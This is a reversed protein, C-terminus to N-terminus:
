FLIFNFLLIMLCVWKVGVKTLKGDQPIESIKWHEMVRYLNNVDFPRSENLYIDSIKAYSLQSLEVEHVASRCERQGEDAIYLVSFANVLM